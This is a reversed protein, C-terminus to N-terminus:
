FFGGGYVGGLVGIGLLPQGNPGMGTICGNRYELINGNERRDWITLSYPTNVYLMDTTWFASENLGSYGSGVNPISVSVGNENVYVRGKGEPVIVTKELNNGPNVIVEGGAGTFLGLNLGYFFGDGISWPRANRDPREPLNYPQPQYNNPGLGLRDSRNIPNNQVYEYLNISGGMFLVPDKSTWRGIEADYDRAGFRVLATEPDYLGGAFGFPQFGPSTDNIVQGFEDYDIRQAVAGTATNVILRPSGLHDSVIRYTFGGKVM